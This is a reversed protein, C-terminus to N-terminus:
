EAARLPTVMAENLVDFTGWGLGTSMSSDPRGCGIGVQEGARHMLNVVDSATFQDADFKVRVLAEWEDFCPRWVVDTSENALKVISELVRPKGKTIKVLPTNDDVDFGDAKVFVSLKAITMKFGVLRCASIMAARFSPAPIGHWGEKSLHMRGEYQEQFNKPDRKVGKKTVSGAQQKKVMAERAKASFKNQVLPANGRIRILAMGFNPAQIVLHQTAAPPAGGTSDATTKKASRAM